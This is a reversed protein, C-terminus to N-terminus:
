SSLEIPASPNGLKRLSESNLEDIHSLSPFIVSWLGAVMLAGVGGAITARVAGWWQATLGSEFSGLENSAGIFLSNVASVRGRMEPPTALQVLSGRVIVSIADAAGGIALSALSLWMNHSVGFVVTAVGFLAVAAFLSRGAHRRMPFRAMGVSMVVSGVAPAARLMGLGM